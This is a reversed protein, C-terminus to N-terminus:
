VPEPWPYSDCIKRLQSRTKEDCLAGVLGARFAAESSCGLDAAVRYEYDLDTAFMAPDDTSISCLVGAAVM